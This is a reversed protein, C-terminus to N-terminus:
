ALRSRRVSYSDNEMANLRPGPEPAGIHRREPGHEGILLDGRERLIDARAVSVLRLPGIDPLLDRFCSLSPASAHRDSQVDVAIGMLNVRVRRGRKEIDEPVFQRQVAGLKSATQPLTARTQNVEVPTRRKGANQWDGGHALALDRRELAQYFVALWVLELLGEDIFLRRLAAVANGAHHHARLCQQADVGMRGVIFNALVHPGIQTAAASMGMM